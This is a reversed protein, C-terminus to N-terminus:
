EEAECLIRRLDELSEHHNAEQRTIDKVEARIFNLAGERSYSVETHPVLLDKEEEFVELLRKYETQAKAEDTIQENLLKCFKSKESM